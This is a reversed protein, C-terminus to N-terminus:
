TALKVSEYKLIRRKRWVQGYRFQCLIIPLVSLTLFCFFTFTWGTGIKNMMPTIFATCAAGFLCRTLNNAASSSSSSDPNIDVLYTNVSNSVGTFCFGFIAQMVLPVAISVKKDVCWGYILATFSCISIHIPILRFRAIELPFDRLDTVDCREHELNSEATKRLKKFEWNLYRGNVLAGLMSGFGTPLFCLGVEILTLHYEDQYLRSMSVQICYFLGFLVAVLALLSTMQLNTLLLRFSMWPRIQRFGKRRPVDRANEPIETYEFENSRGLAGRVLSIWSRHWRSKPKVSGNWVISRLTEPVFFVVLIVVVGGLCALFYFIAHWGWRHAILASFVPGAAPGLQIGVSFIGVYFGREAPSFIDSITGAGIAIVPSSGFAQFARLAAIGSYKNCNAIGISTGVYVIMTLIYINRRGMVDAVSAWIAPAIGQVIMYYTVLLNVSEVDTKLSKAMDPIVPFFISATLPSIVGAITLCASILIRYRPNLANYPPSEEEKEKPTVRGIEVDDAESTPMNGIDQLRKDEEQMLKAWNTSYFPVAELRRYSNHLM